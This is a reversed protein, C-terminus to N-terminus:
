RSAEEIVIRRRPATEYSVELTTKENWGLAAAVVAKPFSLYPTGSGGFRLKKTEM